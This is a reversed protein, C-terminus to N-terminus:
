NIDCMIDVFRGRLKLIMDKNVPMKTHLYAGPIDFTAVDREEYADIVLMTFILEMSVNPSALSEYKALYIKQKSGDNCTRGKITGNRKQKILNVANLAKAKDETSLIDPDITTM